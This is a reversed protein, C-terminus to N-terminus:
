AEGSEGFAFLMFLHPWWTGSPVECDLVDSLVSGVRARETANAVHESRCKLCFFLRGRFQPLSLPPYTGTYLSQGPVFATVRVYFPLLRALRM